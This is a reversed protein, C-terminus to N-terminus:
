SKLEKYVEGDTNKIVINKQYKPFEIVTTPYTFAMSVFDNSDPSIEEVIIETKNNVKNVEKIKLDYGGTNKEGMCIIYTYPADPRNETEIYYGKKALNLYQGTFEGRLFYDTNEVLKTKEEEVEKNCGTFICIGLLFLIALFRKNKM